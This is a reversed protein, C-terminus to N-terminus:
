KQNVQILSLQPFIAQTSTASYGWNCRYRTETDRTSQLPRLVGMPATYHSSYQQGAHGPASVKGTRTHTLIAEQSFRKPGIVPTYTKCSSGSSLRRYQGMHVFM